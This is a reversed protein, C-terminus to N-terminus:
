KKINRWRKEKKKKVNKEKRKKLLKWREEIYLSSGVRSSGFRDSGMRDSGIRDSEIRDSGIRDLVIRNSRRRPQYAFGSCARRTRMEIFFEITNWRKRHRSGAVVIPSVYFNSTLISGVIKRSLFGKWIASIKRNGDIEKVKDTNIEMKIEWRDKCRPKTKKISNKKQLQNLKNWRM